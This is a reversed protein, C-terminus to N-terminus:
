GLVYEVSIRLSPFCPPFFYKFFNRNSLKCVPYYGLAGFEFLKVFTFCLSGHFFVMGLSVVRCPFRFLKWSGLDWSRSLGWDLALVIKGVVHMVWKFSRAAGVSAVWVTGCLAPILWGWWARGVQVNMLQAFSVVTEPWQIKLLRTICSSIILAVHLSRSASLLMATRSVSFYLTTCCLSLFYWWWNWCCVVALM